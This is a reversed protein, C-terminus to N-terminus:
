PPPSQMRRACEFCTAVIPGLTPSLITGYLVEHEQPYGEDVVCFTNRFDPRGSWEREVHWLGRRFVAYYTLEGDTV